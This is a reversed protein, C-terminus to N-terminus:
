MIDCDLIANQLTLATCVEFSIYRYSNIILKCGSGSKENYLSANEELITLTLKLTTWHCHFLTEVGQINTGLIIM